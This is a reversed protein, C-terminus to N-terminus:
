TSNDKVGGGGGGWLKHKDFFCVGGGSETEVWQLNAKRKGWALCKTEHWRTIGTGGKGRKM